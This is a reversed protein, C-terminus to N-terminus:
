PWMGLDLGTRCGLVPGVRFPEGPGFTPSRGRARAVTRRLAREFSKGAALVDRCGHLPRSRRHAPGRFVDAVRALRVSRPERQRVDVEVEVLLPGVGK